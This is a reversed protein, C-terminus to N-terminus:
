KGELNSQKIREEFDKNLQIRAIKIQTIAKEIGTGGWEYSEGLYSLAIDLGFLAEAPLINADPLLASELARRMVRVAGCHDREQRSVPIGDGPRDDDFYIQDPSECEIALTLADNAEATADLFRQYIKIAHENM